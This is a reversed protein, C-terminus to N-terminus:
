ASISANILTRHFYKELNELTTNPYFENIFHKIQVFDEKTDLEIRFSYSKGIRYNEVKYILPLKVYETIMETDPENTKQELKQIEHADILINASIIECETGKPLDSCFTYDARLKIHQKLQDIMTNIDTFLDDGTIRIVYTVNYKEIAFIIRGLVDKESGQVCYIGLKDALDVLPRDIDLYTTCLCVPIGSNKLREILFQIIPKEQIKLFAKGPLRSSNMRATICILVPMRM